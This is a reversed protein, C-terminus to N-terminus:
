SNNDNKASFLHFQLNFRIFFKLLIVKIVKIIKQIEKLVKKKQQQENTVM